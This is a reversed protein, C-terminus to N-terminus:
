RPSQPLRACTRGILKKGVCGGDLHAHRSQQQCTKERRIKSRVRQIAVSGNCSHFLPISHQCHLQCDQTSQCCHPIEPKVWPFPRYLESINSNSSVVYGSAFVDMLSILLKMSLSDSDMRQKPVLEKDVVRATPWDKKQNAEDIDHATTKNSSRM